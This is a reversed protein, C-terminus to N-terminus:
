WVRPDFWSKKNRYEKWREDIPKNRYNKDFIPTVIEKILFGKTDDTRNPRVFDYRM